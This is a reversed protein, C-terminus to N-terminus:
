TLTLGGEAVEEQKKTLAEQLENYYFQLESVREVANKRDAENVAFAAEQARLAKKLNSIDANLSSERNQIELTSEMLQKEYNRNREALNIELQSFSEQLSQCQDRLKECESLVKQRSSESAALKEDFARIQLQSSKIEENLKSKTHRETILVNKVTLLEAQVVGLYKVKETLSAIESCFAAREHEIGEFQGTIGDSKARETILLMKLEHIEANAINVKEVYAAISRGCDDLTGLQSNCLDKADTSEKIERDLEEQKIELCQKHFQLESELQNYKSQM